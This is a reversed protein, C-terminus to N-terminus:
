EGRTDLLLETNTGAVVKSRVGNWRQAEIYKVLENNISSNLEVNGLAEQKMEYFKADAALKRAEKDNAAAELKAESEKVIKQANTEAINLASQAQNEEEQREKTKVMFQRVIPDLRIDSFQVSTLKYQQGVTALYDNVCELTNNALQIQINEEFFAQSNEVRGGAKTLCSLVRKYVHTKLFQDQTGTSSRTDDANGYLFSGTFAVDMNTKFKDKSAVGLDEYSNTIHETNYEDIEWWPAVLNFGTLIKGEHVKGFSTVSAERNTKVITFSNLLLIVALIGLVITTIKGSDAKLQKLMKIEENLM